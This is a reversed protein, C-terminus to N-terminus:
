FRRLGDSFVGRESVEDNYAQIAARNEERWQQKRLERLRQVLAQELAASLNISQARALALLEGNISLNTARKAAHVDYAVAAPENVAYKMRM